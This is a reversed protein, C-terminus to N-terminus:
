LAYRILRHNGDIHWLQNPSAVSYERRQVTNCWRSIMGLPDTRAMSERIRCQQIRYGLRALYGQMLRYGCNPNNHQISTVIRDLETYSLTSYQDQIMIGYESMRRRVTSLSVHLLMATASASFGHSIFYNLVGATICLKPWGRGGSFSLPLYYGYPEASLTDEFSSVITNLTSVVGQMARVCDELMSISDSNLMMVFAQLFREASATISDLREISVNDEDIIRTIEAVLSRIRRRIEEM